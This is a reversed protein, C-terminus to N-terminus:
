ARQWHPVTEGHDALVRALRSAEDSAAIVVMGIGCNFVRVMEAQAVNGSRQLWNFVPPLPWADRQIEAVVNAPLVRPVNDVLGGGTIHALGKITTEKM